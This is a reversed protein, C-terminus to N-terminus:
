LQTATDANALASRLLVTSSGGGPAETSRRVSVLMEGELARKKPIVLSHEKLLRFSEEGDRQLDVIERIDKARKRDVRYGDMRTGCLLLVRKGIEDREEQLEEAHPHDWKRWFARMQNVFGSIFLPTRMAAPVHMINMGQQACVKFTPKPHRFCLLMHLLLANEEATSERGPCWVKSMERQAFELAKKVDIRPYLSALKARIDYRIGDPTRPERCMTCFNHGKPYGGRCKPVRCREEFMEPSMITSDCVPCRLHGDFGQFVVQESCVECVSM